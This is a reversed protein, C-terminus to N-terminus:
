PCQSKRSWPAPGKKLLHCDSLQHLFEWGETSVLPENGHEFIGGDKAPEIWNV